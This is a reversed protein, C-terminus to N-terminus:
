PVLSSGDATDDAGFEDDVVRRCDDIADKLSLQAEPGYRKGLREGLQRLILSFRGLATRVKDRPLLSTKREELDLEKLKAAALRYRELAPSDCGVLLEDDVPERQPAGAAAIRRMWEAGCPICYKYRNKGARNRPLGDRVWQQVTSPDVGLASALDRQSYVTWRNDHDCTDNAAIM